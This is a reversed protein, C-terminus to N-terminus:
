LSEENLKQSMPLVPTLDETINFNPGQTYPQWCKLIIYHDQLMPFWIGLSVADCGLLVPAEDVNSRFGLFKSLSCYKSIMRQVYMTACSTM